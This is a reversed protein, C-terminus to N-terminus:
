SAVRIGRAACLGLLVGVAHEYERWSNPRSEGSGQDVSPNVARTAVWAAVEKRDFLKRAGIPYAHLHREVHRRFTALSVGCMAASEARSILEVEANM